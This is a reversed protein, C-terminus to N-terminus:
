RERQLEKRLVTMAYRSVKKKWNEMGSWRMVLHNLQVDCLACVVHPRNHDACVSWVAFGRFKRCRFCIRQRVQKITLTRVRYYSAM